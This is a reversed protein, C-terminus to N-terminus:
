KQTLDACVQTDNTMYALCANTSNNIQVNNDDWHKYYKDYFNSGFTYGADDSESFNGLDLIARHNLAWKYYKM